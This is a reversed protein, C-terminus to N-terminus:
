NKLAAWSIGATRALSIISAEGNLYREVLEVRKEPTLKMKRKPM